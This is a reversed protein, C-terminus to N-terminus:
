EAPPVGRLLRRLSFMDLQLSLDPSVEMLRTLATDIDQDVVLTRRDVLWVKTGSGSVELRVVQRTDIAERKGASTFEVLM